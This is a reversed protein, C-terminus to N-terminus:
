ERAILFASGGFVNRQMASVREGYPLGVRRHWLRYGLGEHRPDTGTGKDAHKDDGGRRNTWFFLETM